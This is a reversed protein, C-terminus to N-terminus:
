CARPRSGSAPDTAASGSRQLEEKLVGLDEEHRVWEEIYGCATCVFRQSAIHRMLRDGVVIHSHDSPTTPISFLDESGCKGCVNPTRLAYRALHLNSDLSAQRDEPNM